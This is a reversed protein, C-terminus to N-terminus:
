TILVTAFNAVHRSRHSLQKCRLHPKKRNRNAVFKKSNTWDCDFNTMQRTKLAVYSALNEITVDCRKIHILSDVETQWNNIWPHPFRKAIRTIVDLNSMKDLYNMGKLTNMCSNLESSFRLLSAKDNQHLLPGNTLTDICAKAIQFKQGFTQQLLKRAKTYGLNDDM